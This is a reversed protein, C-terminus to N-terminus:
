KRPVYNQADSVFQGNERSKILAAVCLSDRSSFHGTEVALIASVPFPLLDNNTVVDGVKVTGMSAIALVNIKSYYEDYAQLCKPDYGWSKSLNVKNGLRDFSGLAGLMGNAFKSTSELVGEWKDPDLAADHIDGILNSLQRNRGNAASWKRTFSRPM